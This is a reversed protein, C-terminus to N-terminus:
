EKTYCQLQVTELHPSCAPFVVLCVCLETMSRRGLGESMLLSVNELCCSLKSARRMSDCLEESKSINSCYKGEEPPPLYSVVLFM